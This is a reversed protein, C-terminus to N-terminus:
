SKRSKEWTRRLADRMTRKMAQKMADDYYWDAIKALERQQKRLELNKPDSEIQENIQM